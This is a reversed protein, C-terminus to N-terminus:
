FEKLCENLMKLTLQTNSEGFNVVDGYCFAPSCVYVINKRTYDSLTHLKLLQFDPNVAIKASVLNAVYFRVKSCHRIAHTYKLSKDFATMIM